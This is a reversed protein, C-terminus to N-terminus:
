RNKDTAAKQSRHRPQDRDPTKQAAREADLDLAIGYVSARDYETVTTTERWSPVKVTHTGDPSHSVHSHMTCTRSTVDRERAIAAVESDPV